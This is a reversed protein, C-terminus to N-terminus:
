LMELPRHRGGGDPLATYGHRGVDARVFWASRGPAIGGHWSVLQAAIPVMRLRGLLPACGPLAGSTLDITCGPVVRHETVAVQLTELSDCFGYIVVLDDPRWTTQEASVPGDARLPAALLVFVM